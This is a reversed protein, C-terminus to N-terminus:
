APFYTLIVVIETGEGPQSKITLQAGIREARESIGLLGFGGISPISGVGFGRGDDKIHLICQTNEYKLEIRIEVADAYKIANTLAEQGIRFLNNEVEAPLPYATGTIEYILATDTAARMQTMLRHLASHLNGDELLQPRLATVSRRAEALGTRALEDITELHAQTAALDDTLVQTAAGVNLLIGTFAQALTDHIERAMRNREELISAAEARKRDRLTAALRESIDQGIGINIGNSLRINSWSTDLYSGDRIRVKFDQWKGTAASIHEIVQQHYEPNPFCEAILDINELETHSWGSVRELEQNVLKIQGNTNFLVIMLPIHDFIAQLLEKQENLQSNQKALQKSLRSIRLQNEIRALVEKAEFPKTIYDVGGLSFAKVKDFVEHLASIFIVPIDQTKSSIKLERCVEYGDMEPMLIDLLILDPENSQVFQLALQGDPALRVIYGQESLTRALLQLNELIDDVILITEKSASKQITNM